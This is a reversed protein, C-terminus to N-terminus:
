SRRELLNAALYQNDQLLSRALQTTVRFRASFNM